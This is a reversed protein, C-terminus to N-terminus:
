KFTEKLKSLMTFPADAIAMNIFATPISGGPDTIAQHYIETKNNALPTFKWIATIKKVRVYDNNEPLINFANEVTITIAGKEDPKSFLYRTIIERTKILPASMLVQIYFDNENNLKLQKVSGPIVRYMWKDFSKYNRFYSVVKDLASNVSTISKFEKLSSNVPKRTWVKIENKNKELKWTEEAIATQDLFM